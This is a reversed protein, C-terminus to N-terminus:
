DGDADNFTLTVGLANILDVQLLRQLEALADVAAQVSDPDKTVAETLPGPIADLAAYSADLAKRIKPPLEDHGLRDTYAALSQPKKVDAGFFVEEVGHLNDVVDQVSRGSFRSEASEPQPTGDTRLGLVAGLKAGRANEVIFVLRSM